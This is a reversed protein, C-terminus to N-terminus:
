RRRPARRTAGLVTSVLAEADAPDLPTPTMLRRYLVAGALAV